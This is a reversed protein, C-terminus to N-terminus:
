ATLYREVEDLDASYPFAGSGCVVGNTQTDILMYGGFDVARPDRRKSKELRLGQREAMRRLRNEKVKMEQDM